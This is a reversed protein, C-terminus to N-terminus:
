LKVFIIKKVTFFTVAYFLTVYIGSFQQLFFLWFMIMLPKYGTPKLFGGWKSKKKLPALDDVAKPDRQMRDAQSKEHDNVLANVHM